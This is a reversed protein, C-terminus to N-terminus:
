ENENFVEEGKNEEGDEKEVFKLYLKREKKDLSWVINVDNFYYFDYGKGDVVKVSVKNETNGIKVVEGSFKNERALNYLDYIDLKVEIGPEAKDIVLVIQKAYIQEYLTSSSGARVVGLFMMMLFVVAFLIYVLNEMLPGGIGRKKMKDVFDKM